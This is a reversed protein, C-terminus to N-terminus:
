APDPIGIDFAALTFTNGSTVMQGSALTSAALLRSGDIIAYFEADDDTDTSTATISGDTIASVTVKRGGGTRDGPVSITPGTKNGVSNSIATARDTPMTHCIHLVTSTANTLVNLGDDLVDDHLFAM